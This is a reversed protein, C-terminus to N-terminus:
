NKFLLSSLNTRVLRCAENWALQLDVGLEDCLRMVGANDSEIGGPAVAGLLEAEAAAGAATILSAISSDDWVWAWGGGGDAIRASGSRLGLLRSVTAHGAEHVAAVRADAM